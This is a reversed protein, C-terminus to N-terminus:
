IPYSTAKKVKAINHVVTDISSGRFVDFGSTYNGRENEELVRKLLLKYAAPKLISRWERLQRTQIAMGQEVTFADFLESMETPKM